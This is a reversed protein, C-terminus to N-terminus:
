SLPNPVPIPPRVFVEVGIPTWVRIHLQVGTEKARKAASSVQLERSHYITVWGPIGSIAVDVTSDVMTDKSVRLGGRAKVSESGFLESEIPKRELCGSENSEDNSADVVRLSPPGYFVVRTEPSPNLVEIKALGGWFYQYGHVDGGVIRSVPAVYSRLQKRPNLIKIEEPLLIHPLRHHLHLGPTDYLVGGSAFVNLPISKLTTGPMPSEVPLHKKNQLAAPDFQQSSMSSMEQVLARTFASKGVNAAGMVYVDRGQRLKRISGVATAMGERTRSSVLHVSEVAIRKFSLMMHLWEIVEERNTGYPLLDAKSGLVVIPNGGVLDRIRSLISGSADLIDILMVVLARSNRVEQLDRRLQEPTALQRLVHDTSGTPTSQPNYLARDTSFDAVGPVMAGNSLAQCRACLLQNLQKHKKKTDYTEPSVFGIDGPHLTQVFAGCGYCQTRKRNEIGSPVHVLPLPDEDTRQGEQAAKSKVAALLRSVRRDYSQLLM